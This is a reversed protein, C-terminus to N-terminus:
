VGLIRSGFIQPHSELLGPAESFATDRKMAMLRLDVGVLFPLLKYPGIEPDFPVTQRKVAHLFYCINLQIKQTVCRYKFGNLQTCIFTYIKSHFTQFWKLIHM